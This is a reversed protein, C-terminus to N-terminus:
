HGLQELASRLPASSVQILGSYPSYMGLIVLIAGCVALASALLSSVVTVNTRVFLGFSVFLITLWFVLLVLLPKPISSTQQEFMLWRTRGLSIALASAETRLTRQKDNDPSLDQILDYLKEESTSRSQGNNSHDRMWALDLKRVVSQRLLARVESTEPGFHALVRDLLVVNAALETVETNQTDYYTKASATLLGLVLAVTTAVLGMGIRVAEKTDPGLHDERIVSHLRLGLLAGGFVCVFAVASIIFPSM